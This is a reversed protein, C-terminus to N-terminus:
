TGTTPSDMVDFTANNVSAIYSLAKEGQKFVHENGFIDTKVYMGKSEILTLANKYDGKMIDGLRATILANMSAEDAKEKDNSCSIFVLAQFLIACVLIACKRIKIM